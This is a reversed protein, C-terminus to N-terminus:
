LPDCQQAADCNDVYSCPAEINAPAQGQIQVWAGNVQHCLVIRENAGLSDRYSFDNSNDNSEATDPLWPDSRFQIDIPTVTSPVNGAAETRWVLIWDTLSVQMPLANGGGQNLHLVFDDRREVTFFYLVALDTWAVPVSPDAYLEVHVKISTSVADLGDSDVRLATPQCNEDCRQSLCQTWETCDDGLACQETCQEFPDVEPMGSDAQTQPPAGADVVSHGADLGVPEPMSSQGGAAMGADPQAPPTTPPPASPNVSVPPATDDATPATVTGPAGGTPPMSTETPADSASSSAASSDTANSATAAGDADPSQVGSGGAAGQAPSSTQPTSAGGPTLEGGSSAADLDRLPQCAGSAFVGVVAWRPISWRM